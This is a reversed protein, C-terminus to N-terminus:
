FRNIIGFHLKADGFSDGQGLGFDVAMIGLATQMRIGLGYGYLVDVGNRGGEDFHYAAWDNFVFLRTNKGLILRYELNMWSVKDSRFQNERYGRLSKSGGFWFMDTIQVRGGSVQHATLALALVQKKFLEYYWEFRLSVTELREKVAISDERLLFGPGYNNKLGLGYSNKFYLGSRPNLLYDRTDYVVGITFDHQSFRVLRRSVNAVSDPLVVRRGYSLAVRLNRFLRYSANIDGKWELYSSDRVTREIGGELNLPYGAVWPEMYRMWFNESVEEPREWHVALRRGTGFLNNFRINFLGSFYGKKGDVTGGPPVYGAVGDFTTAQGEKVEILLEYRGEPTIRVQPEKVSEFLQLRELRRKIASLESRSYIQGPQIDVERLVVRANTYSNGSVAVGSLRVRENEHIHVDLDIRGREQSLTRMHGVPDIEAFAFGSDAAISLWEKFLQELEKENYVSGTDAEFSHTYSEVALSDSFLTVKGLYIRSGAGGFLHLNVGKDSIRTGIRSIGAYLWGRAHFAKEMKSKYSALASTDLRGGMSLGAARLLEGAPIVRLSSDMTLGTLTLSVSQAKPAVVFLVLWLLSHYLKKSTHMIM